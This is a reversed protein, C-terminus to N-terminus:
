EEEPSDYDAGRGSNGGYGGGGSVRKTPWGREFTSMPDVRNTKGPTNGFKESIISLDGVGGGRMMKDEVATDPAHTDDDNEAGPIAAPTPDLLGVVWARNVM